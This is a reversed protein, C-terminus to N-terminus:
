PSRLRYFRGPYNMWQPDSFYSSGDSLTNTGVSSWIPHALNTCAEVVVSLNTAWSVVFGFQNTQVGFRPANNLIVPNPLVWLATPRDGFTPGWGTAGPLHYVIVQDAVQFVSLALGPANGQFFVGTLSSCASFADPGIGTVSSPITISALSTCYTFARSAISTLNDPLTVSTLNSCNGFMGVALHRVSNPVAANTLGVCEQFAWLGISTIGEPLTLSTLSSCHLFAWNGISTVSRPVIVSTLNTCFSFAWEGIGTVPLGNITEPVTVVAASCNYRTITIAGNNTTYNFQAQVVAPLTLLLLLLL